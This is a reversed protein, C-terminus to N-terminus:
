PIQRKVDVPGNSLILRKREQILSNKKEHFVYPPFMFHVFNQFETCSYKATIVRKSEYIKQNESVWAQKM